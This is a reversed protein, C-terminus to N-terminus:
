EQAQDGNQVKANVGAVVGAGARVGVVGARVAVV